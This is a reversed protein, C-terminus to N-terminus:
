QKRQKGFQFRDAMKIEEETVQDQNLPMVVARIDGKDFYVPEEKAADLITINGTTIGYLAQAVLQRSLMVSNLWGLQRIKECRLNGKGDCEKCACSHTEGCHSCARKTVGSECYNCGTNPKGLCIACGLHKDDWDPPGAWSKLVRTKVTTGIRKDQLIDSIKRAINTPANESLDTHGVMCVLYSKSTAFTHEVGKLTLKYIKRYEPRDKNSSSNAIKKLWSLQRDNLNTKNKSM